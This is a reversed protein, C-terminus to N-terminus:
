RRCDPTRRYSCLWDRDADTWRSGDDANDEVIAKEMQEESIRDTLRDAAARKRYEELARAAANRQREMEAIQAEAAEKEALLVYGERAADNAEAVATKVRGAFIERLVPVRDIFPIDRVFPVGEYFGLLLLVVCGTLGIQRLISILLTGM